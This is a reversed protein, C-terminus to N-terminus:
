TALIFQKVRGEPTIQFINLKVTNVAKFFKFRRLYGKSNMTAGQTVKACLKLFVLKLSRSLSICSSVPLVLM